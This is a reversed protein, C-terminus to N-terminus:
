PWAWGPVSARRACGRRWISGPLCGRGGRWARAPPAVPARSLPTRPRPLLPWVWLYAGLFGVYLADHAMAGGCITTRQRELFLSSRQRATGDYPSRRNRWTPPVTLRVSAFRALSWPPDFYSGGDRRLVPRVTGRVRRCKPAEGSAPVPTGFRCGRSVCPPCDQRHRADAHAPRCNWIPVVTLRRCQHCPAAFNAGGHFGRSPKGFNPVGHVGSLSLLLHVTGSITRCRGKGAVAPAALAEM